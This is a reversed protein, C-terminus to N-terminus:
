SVSYKCDINELISASTVVTKLRQDIYRKLFQVVRDEFCNYILM